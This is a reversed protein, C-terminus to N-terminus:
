VVFFHREYRDSTGNIMHINQNQGQQTFHFSLMELEKGETKYAPQLFISLYFTNGEEAYFKDQGDYLKYYKTSAFHISHM